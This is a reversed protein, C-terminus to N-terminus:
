EISSLGTAGLTGTLEFIQDFPLSQTSLDLTVTEAVDDIASLTNLDAYMPHTNDAM